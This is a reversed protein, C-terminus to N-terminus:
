KFGSLASRTRRAGITRKVQKELNKLYNDQQKQYHESIRRASEQLWGDSGPDYQPKNAEVASYALRHVALVWASVIDGHGLGIKRPIKITTTGGPAAKSVVLKAQQYMRKCIESKPIVCLGDHLVARTRQFVEAKGRTGEPADIVVLGHRSLHEKLSERYYADAIVGAAGYRKAVESFKAIVEGPKLPKGPKPRMEEAHVLRYKKGDFQVVVIASSDRTFGLDCGIAVPWAPNVKIPWEETEHLATSLANVDFFEGGSLGDIECFLERRANEPDKSLEDEVLAMIHPENRVLTTPAKIALATLCKAWNENFLEGMLTEVPWPTSILMAKGEPLLRPKAAAWIDRDNVVYDREGASDTSTMFEAEDLILTLIDRGRIASGGRTAAFSEINVVKGDPRRLEIMEKTDSIVMRQLAPQGLIMEKAMRITLKATDKDPAIVMAYAAAGPGLTTLASTVAKYICFATCMTTKGSGRGLRMVVFRKAKPDVRELGGFMQLAIDREEGSLDAPDYNGFAVKAIVSQGPTLKLKLVKLCFEHFELVSTKTPM